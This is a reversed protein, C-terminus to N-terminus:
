VRKRLGLFLGSTFFRQQLVYGPATISQPRWKIHPEVLLDLDNTIRYTLGVSGYFALGLRNRYAHYTDPTNGSFQVPEFTAPSLFEGQQTFLMNIFTGGNIAVGLNSGTNFEYGFILPIDITTYRNNVIRRTSFYDVVTDTGIVQGNPGYETTITIREEQDNRYSFQENIQSYNLGSRVAFGSPAITSFRVGASFGYRFHETTNRAAAYAEYQPSVAELDRSVLDPSVIFDVTSRWVRREEFKACTVDDTRPPGDLAAAKTPLAEILSSSTSFPASVPPALARIDVKAGHLSVSSVPLTATLTIGAKRNPSKGDVATSNRNNELGATATKAFALPKETVSGDEQGRDRQNTPQAPSPITTHTTWLVMGTLLLIVVSLLNILKYLGFHPIHTARTAQRQADVREWLHMPPEYSHDGLQQRFFDDIPHKDSM